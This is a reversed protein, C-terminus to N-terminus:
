GYCRALVTAFRDVSAPLSQGWDPQQRAHACGMLPADDSPPSALGGPRGLRRRTNPRPVADDNGLERESSFQQGPNTSKGKFSSPQNYRIHEGTSRIHADPHILAHDEDATPGKM